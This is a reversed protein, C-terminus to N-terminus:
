NMYELEQMADSASLFESFNKQLFKNARLTPQMAIVDMLFCIGIERNLIDGLEKNTKILKKFDFSDRIEDYKRTNELHCRKLEKLFEDTTYIRSNDMNYLQAAYEMGFVIQVNFKKLLKAFEKNEFYFIHGQLQNFTRMTDLYGLRINRDIREKNFEFVGGLDESSHIIRINADQKVTNRPIGPGAVDVAIINKYGKKLLMNIPIVDALGGDFFEKDNIKQPKFIPFCASALLYDIMEDKPIDNKFIEFGKMGSVSYAVLGLDIKSKYVKDIDIYKLLTERLATNDLGKKKFYETVLSIINRIDFIDKSTDIEFDNSFVDKIDINRYLEAMQNVDNQLFLAANLAGISTGTVATINIKLEKLAKAVGAQYAGKTGGGGLVLGYVNEKM